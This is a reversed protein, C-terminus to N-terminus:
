ESMAYLKTSLSENDVQITTLNRAEFDRSRLSGPASAPPAVSKRPKKASSVRM